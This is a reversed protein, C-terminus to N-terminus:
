RGRGSVQEANKREGARQTATGASWGVEGAGVARGERLRELGRVIAARMDTDRAEQEPGDPLHFTKRNFPSQNEFVTKYRTFLVQSSYFTSIGARRISRLALSFHFALKCRHSVRVPTCSVVRRQM